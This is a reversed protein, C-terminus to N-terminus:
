LCEVLKNQYLIDVELESYFAEQALTLNIQAMELYGRRMQERLNKRKTEALYFRMAERIFESRNKKEITMIGDVEELLDAPLCIMIRKTESM